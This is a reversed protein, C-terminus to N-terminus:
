YQPLLSLSERWKDMLNKYVELRFDWHFDLAAAGIGKLYTKVSMSTGYKLFKTSQTNWVHQWSGNGENIGPIKIVPIKWSIAASSSSVALSFLINSIMDLGSINEGKFFIDGLDGFVSAGTDSAIDLLFIKGTGELPRLKGALAWSFKFKEIAGAGQQLEFPGANKLFQGLANKGTMGVSFGGFIAGSIAGGFAGDVFGEMFSGGMLASMGGGVLGGLAAGTLIGKAMGMLVCVAFSTGFGPLFVLAAAAALCLAATAVLKWNEKCWEGVPILGDGIQELFNKEYDPKLYHYKDYFDNKGRDIMAAVNSDVKEVDSAFREINEGFRNLVDIKEEQIRTSASISSIVDDMNCINRNVSQSKNKLTMLESKFDKVSSGIDRVLGPMSNIKNAYLKITAM